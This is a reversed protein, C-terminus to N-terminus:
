AEFITIIPEIIATKSIMASVPCYRTISLEVAREAAAKEINYGTITYEITVHNFVRPHEETRGAHIKVDFGTVDQRKKHLIDIVDMATCGALGILILEMPSFGSDDGGLAPNSGLTLSFGRDATGTFAMKGKWSVQADMM